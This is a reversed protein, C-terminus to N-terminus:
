STLYWYMGCGQFNMIIFGGTLLFLSVQFSSWNCLKFSRECYHELCDRELREQTRSLYAKLLLGYYIQLTYVYFGYQMELFNGRNIALPVSICIQFDAFIKMKVNFCRKSKSIACMLYTFLNNILMSFCCFINFILRSKLFNVFNM